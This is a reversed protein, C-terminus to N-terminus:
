GASQYTLQGEGVLRTESLTAIQVNYRALEHAVLATRREPRGSGTCDMLTRVNYAGFSFPM